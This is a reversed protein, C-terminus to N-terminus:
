LIGEALAPSPNDLLLRLHETDVTEPIVDQKTMYDVIEDVRDPYELAVEALQPSMIATSLENIMIERMKSQQQLRDSMTENSMTEFPVRQRREKAGFAVRFVASVADHEPTGEEINSLKKIGLSRQIHPLAESLSYRDSGIADRFVVHTRVREEDDFSQVKLFATVGNTGHFAGHIMELTGTSLKDLGAFRPKKSIEEEMERRMKIQKHEFYEREVFTRHEDSLNHRNAYKREAAEDRLKQEAAIDAKLDDLLTKRQKAAAGTLTPVVKSLIGTHQSKAEARVHKIVSIGNKNVRAEPILNSM